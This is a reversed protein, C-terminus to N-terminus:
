LTTVERRLHPKLGSIFCSLYFSTPYGSIRNAISEFEFIYDHLTQTQTLRCLADIPDDFKSPALRLELALLFVDWSTLLGNNHMWQYWALAHVELYFSVIQTRQKPPTNHFDFFQTIKFIWGLADDGNFSPLDFKLPRASTYTPTLPPVFLKTELKSELLSTRTAIDHLTNSFNPQSLLIQELKKDLSSFVDSTDAM